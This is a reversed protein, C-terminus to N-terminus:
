CAVPWLKFPDTESSPLRTLKSLKASLRTAPSVLPRGSTKTRSLCCAVVVRTDTLLEARRKRADHLVGGVNQKAIQPQAGVQRRAVAAQHGHARQNRGALHRLDDLTLAVGLGGVLLSRASTTYICCQYWNEAAFIIRGLLAKVGKMKVQYYLWLIVALGVLLVPWNVSVFAWVASWASALVDSVSGLAFLVSSVFAAVFMSTQM